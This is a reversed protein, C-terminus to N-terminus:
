WGPFAQPDVDPFVESFAETVCAGTIQEGYASILQDVSVLTDDVARGTRDSLCPRAVALLEPDIRNSRTSQAAIEVYRFHAISCRDLDHTEASEAVPSMAYTLAPGGRIPDPMPDVLDWGVTALCTDFQRAADAMEADTIAGDALAQAQDIAGAALAENRLSRFEAAVDDAGAAAGNADVGPTSTTLLDAWDDVDVPAVSAAVRRALATADEASGAVTVQALLSPSPQWTLTAGGTDLRLAGTTEGIPVTRTPPGVFEQFRVMSPSASSVRFGILAPQDGMFDFNVDPTAAVHDDVTLVAEEPLFAPDIDVGQRGQRLQLHRAWALLEGRTADPAWMKAVVGEEVLVLSLGSGHDVIAGAQDWGDVIVDDILGGTIAATEHVSGTDDVSVALVPGGDVEWIQTSVTRGEGFGGDVMEAGGLDAPFLRSDAPTAAPEVPRRMDDDPRLAVTVAVAACAAAIAGASAARVRQRRRVRSLAGAIVSDAGPRSAPMASDVTSTLAQHLRTELDTM